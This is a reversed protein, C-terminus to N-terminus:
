LGDEEVALATRVATMAAALILAALLLVSAEAPAKFTGVVEGEIRIGPDM